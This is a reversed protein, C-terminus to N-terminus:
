RPPFGPPPLLGGPLGPPSGEPPPGGGPPPGFGPGMGPALPPMPPRLAKLEDLKRIQEPSLMQRMEKEMEDNIAQVKPFGERLLAELKPRYRDTIEKAKTQQEFTLQLAGPPGPLFPAYPHHPRPLPAASFRYFGAGAVAGLLFTGFLLLATLLRIQRPTRETTTM